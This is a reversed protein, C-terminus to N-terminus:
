ADLAEEGLLAAALEGRKESLLTEVAADASVTIRVTGFDAVIGPFSGARIYAANGEELAFNKEPFVKKVLSEAEGPSLFRYNAKFGAKDGAEGVTVGGAEGVAPGEAEGAREALDRALIGLLKERGLGRLYSAAAERLLRDIRELALRRRDLPLRAMIETRGTELREDFRRELEAMAKRTKKEWQKESAAAEEDAAKLIRQAKRRADELIERDLVETSQLEEM